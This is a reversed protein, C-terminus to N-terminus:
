IATITQNLIRRKCTKRYKLFQTIKRNQISNLIEKKRDDNDRNTTFLKKKIEDFNKNIKKQKSKVARFIHTQRFSTLYIQEINEQQQLLIIYKSHFANQSDQVFLSM